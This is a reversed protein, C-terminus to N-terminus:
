VRVNRTGLYADIVGPHRQAERPDGDFIKRGFNLVIVRQALPLLFDM